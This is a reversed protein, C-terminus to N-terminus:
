VSPSSETKTEMEYGTVNTEMYCELGTFMLMPKPELSPKRIEMMQENQFSSFVQCRVYVELLLTPM